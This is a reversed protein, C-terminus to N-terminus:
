QLSEPIELFSTPFDYRSLPYPYAQLFIIAIWKVDAVQPSRPENCGTPGQLSLM